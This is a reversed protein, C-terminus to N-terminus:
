GTAGTTVATTAGGRGATRRAGEVAGRRLCVAARWLRLSNRVLRECREEVSNALAVVAVM